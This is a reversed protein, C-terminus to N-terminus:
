NFCSLEFCVVSSVAASAHCSGCQPEVNVIGKLLARNLLGQQDNSYVLLFVMRRFCCASLVPVIQM